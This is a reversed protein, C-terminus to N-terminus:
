RFNFTLELDFGRSRYAGTQVTPDLNRLNRYRYWGTIGVSKYIQYTWGLALSADDQPLYLRTQGIQADFLLRQRANLRYVLNLGYTTADQGLNSSGGSLLASIGLRYSLRGPPVGTVSASLTRADSKSPSDLFRTRSDDFSLFLNTQRGLDYDFAMGITTNETNSTVSGTQRRTYAYGEIGARESLRCSLSSTWYVLDTPGVAFGNGEAGGTFGNGGYGFGNGNQLRGLTALEGSRSIGYGVNASLRGSPNYSGALTVDNGKGTKGDSRITSLSARASLATEPSPNYRAGLRVTDLAVTGEKTTAGTTVPGRGGQHGLGFTTALKGFTRSGSLETNDLRTEDGRLRSATRVHEIRWAPGSGDKGYNASTRLETVRAQDVIVNGQADTRRNAISANRQTAAFVWGSGPQYQLQTDWAKENRNFTRSEVSVFGEPVDRLSTRLSWQKARYDLDIGRATGSLPNVDSKLRGRAQTLTITGNQGRTGLPLRYDLGLVERDGDVTTTPKPTYVVEITSTSPVFRTFFFVAPNDPSFTYDVGLLQLVGDVRIAIPRGPLPEFELVYPTSPAGFGQFLESRTSLAGAGATKQSLLTVGLRGARGFDYTGGFGQVTGRPANFGFAEFTVVITSTPAVIKGVFTIAGIEYSITYDSGLVQAVGDVEVSESGAIVQSTQLYYPGASNNGQLSVTRPSGKAESRVARLEVRGRRFGAQVGQLTKAFPTFRNSNTLRGRIDGANIELPGRVYDLSVNRAQPDRFRSDTLFLNFNLVDLVKRGVINVNGIDTYRRGGQGSYNLSNFSEVDGDVQHSHLGFTRYGSVEVRSLVKARIWSPLDIRHAAQVPFGVAALALILWPRFFRGSM